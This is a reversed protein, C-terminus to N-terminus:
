TRWLAGKRSARFMRVIHELPKRLINWSSKMRLVYKLECISTLKDMPMPQLIFSFGMVSNRYKSFHRFYIRTPPLSAAQTNNVSVRACSLAIDTHTCKVKQVRSKSLKLSLILWGTKNTLSRMSIALSSNGRAADWKARCLIKGRIKAFCSILNFNNAVCDCIM